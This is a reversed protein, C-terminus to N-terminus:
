SKGFVEMAGHKNLREMDEETLKGNGKKLMYVEVSKKGWKEYVDDVTPYYLDLENGQIASGKDAVVGYGYGPIYLISGIPFVDLDAAITSFVDRQVQVGSFTIGYLPHDPSKGTSEVGATYGTAVVDHSPYESFDINEHPQDKKIMVSSVYTQQAKQVHLGKSMLGTQRTSLMTKQEVPAHYKAAIWNDLDKISLNSLSSFTSVAAFLFLVLFFFTQRRKKM